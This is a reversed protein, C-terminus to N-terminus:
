RVVGREVDAVVNSPLSTLNLSTNTKNDVEIRLVGRFWDGMSQAAAGRGIERGVEKDPNFSLGVKRGEESVFKLAEVIEKLIILMDRALQKNEESFAAKIQVGIEQIGKWIDVVSYWLRILDIVLWPHEAKWDDIWEDFKAKVDDWVNAFTSANIGLIEMWEAISPFINLMTKFITEILGKGISKLNSWIGALGQWKQNGQENTAAISLLALLALGLPSVIFTLLAGGIMVAFAILGAFATILGGIGLVVSGVVFLITGFVVGLGAIWNILKQLWPPMNTVWDLFKLAWDLVVLALPLFLIGLATRLVDFVGAMELAPSVLGMFFNKIGLGFFMVSLMEMRFGGLGATAKRLGFAVRGGFTKMKGGFEHFQRFEKRDMKLVDGFGSMQREALFAQKKMEALSQKTQALGNQMERIGKTEGVLRLIVEEITGAM